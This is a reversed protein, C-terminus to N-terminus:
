SKRKQPTTFTIEDKGKLTFSFEYMSPKFDGLLLASDGRLIEIDHYQRWGSGKGTAVDIYRWPLYEDGSTIGEVSLKARCHNANVKSKLSNVVSITLVKGSVPRSVPDHSQLALYPTTRRAEITLEFTPKWRRPAVTGFYFLFASTTSTIVQLIQLALTPSVLNPIAALIGGLFLTIAIERSEVM